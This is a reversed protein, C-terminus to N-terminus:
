CWRALWCWACRFTASPARPPEHAVGAQRPRRETRRHAGRFNHADDQDAHDPRFRGGRGRGDPSHLQGLAPRADDAPDSRHKSLARCEARAFRLLPDRADAGALFDRRGCLANRGRAARHHLRRRSIRFHSRRSVVRGSAVGASIGAPRAVHGAHEHLLHLRRRPRTGLVRPGRVLRRTRGGRSRGRLGHRRSVHPQRARQRHAPPAASDHVARRAM